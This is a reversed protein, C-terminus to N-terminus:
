TFYLLVQFVMLFPFILNPIYPSQTLLPCWQLLCDMTMALLSAKSKDALPYDKLINLSSKKYTINSALAVYANKNTPLKLITSWIIARYKNPYKGFEKLIPILRKTNLERKMSGRVCDLHDNIKHARLRHPILSKKVHSRDASIVKEMHIINLNGEQDIYSICRGTSSIAFKKIGSIPESIELLSSASVDCFHLNCKSSLLAIIKNAGGDLPLPVISLQRAETFNTSFHLKKLLSWDYTSLISINRAGAIIMARGDKTFIFDKVYRSDFLKTDIKTDKDLHGFIWAQMTDNHYLVIIHGANSFAAKKIVANRGSIRLQHIKQYSQLHWIIVENRSCTLCYNKYFSIHMPPFKHGTLLCDIDDDVTTYLKWIKIDGTNLGILVERKYIPNFAICTVQGVEGMKKIYAADESLEVCYLYGKTNVVILREEDHDVALQTFSYRGASYEKGIGAKSEYRYGNNSKILKSWDKNYMTYHYM